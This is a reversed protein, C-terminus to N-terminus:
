KGMAPPLIIKSIKIQIIAKQIIQRFKHYLGFGLFKGCDPFFLSGM